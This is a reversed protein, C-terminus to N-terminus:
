FEDCQDIWPGDVNWHQSDDDHCQDVRDLMDMRLLERKWGEEHIPWGRVTCAAASRQQPRGTDYAPALM